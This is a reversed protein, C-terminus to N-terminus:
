TQECNEDRVMETLNGLCVIPDNFIDDKLLGILESQRPHHPLHVARRYFEGASYTGWDVLKSFYVGFGFRKGLRVFDPMERFNNEQVVMSIGVWDMPISEHLTSIFELNELLTEFCGGRRNMSYTESSAADISIEATKVIQQIEDPITKWMKPTWLLANTHIHLKKLRPIDRKKMTQLWKRFFPSGFPDGSGTIYLLQADKLAEKCIKNQVGLIQKRNKREIIVETRCSPCSLNCSKDYCCNIEKPGFSLITLEKNIILKFDEDTVDEVKEVPGSMTHLFPCRSRNCYSFSGDLISHRIEQAKKGNWIEMVSQFRLNGIPTELWSPCCMYVEGIGNVQTIEFWTFPKSCFLRENKSM